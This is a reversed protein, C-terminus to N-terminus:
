PWGRQQAKLPQCMFPRASDNFLSLLWSLPCRIQAKVAKRKDLIRRIMGPLLRVPSKNTIQLTTPHRCHHYANCRKDYDDGWRIVSALCAAHEVSASHVSPQGGADIMLMCSVKAFLGGPRGSTHSAVHLLCISKDLTLRAYPRKYTCHQLKM